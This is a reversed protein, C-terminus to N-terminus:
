NLDPHPWRVVSLNTASSEAGLLRRFNKVFPVQYMKNDGPLGQGGTKLGTPKGVVMIKVYPPIEDELLTGVMKKITAVVELTNNIASFTIFCFDRPKSVEQWSM